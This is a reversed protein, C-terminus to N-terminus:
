TLTRKNFESVFFDILEVRPVAFEHHHRSNERVALSCAAAISHFEGKFDLGKASTRGEGGFARVCEMGFSQAVADPRLCRGRSVALVPVRTPPIFSPLPAPVPVPFSMPVEESHTSGVIEM